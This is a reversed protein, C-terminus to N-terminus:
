QSHKLQKKLFKEVESLEMLDNIQKKMLISSLNDIENYLSIGLYREKYKKYEEPINDQYINQFELTTEFKIDDNLYKQMYQKLLLNDSHTIYGDISVILHNIRVILATVNPSYWRINSSIVSIKEQIEKIDDLDCFFSHVLKHSLNKDEVPFLSVQRVLFILRSLEDYAEIRKDLIKKYYDRKYVDKQIWFNGCITGATGALVGFVGIIAVLITEDISM